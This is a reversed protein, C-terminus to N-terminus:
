ATGGASFVHMLRILDDAAQGVPSGPSRRLLPQLQHELFIEPGSYALSWGEFRRREVDEEQIVTLNTHRADRRLNAILHLIPAEPGEIFQAFHRHTFVLAGTIGVSTNWGRSWELIADVQRDADALDLLSNSIYLISKLM